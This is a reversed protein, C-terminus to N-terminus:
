PGEVDTHKKHAVDHGDVDRVIVLEHRRLGTPLSEDRELAVARIVLGDVEVKEVEIDGALELRCYLCNDVIGGAMHQLPDTSRDNQEEVPGAPQQEDPPAAVYLHGFRSVPPCVAAWEERTLQSTVRNGMHGLHDDLDAPRLAAYEDPAMTDRAENLLCLFALMTDHMRVRVSVDPDFARDQLRKSLKSFQETIM